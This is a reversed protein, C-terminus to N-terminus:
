NLPMLAAAKLTTEAVDIVATTGVPAVVPLILTILATPVPTLVVLKATIGPTVLKLGTIPGAPVTTMMVPVPKVPAVATFNPAVAAM